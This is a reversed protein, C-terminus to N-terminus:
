EPFEPKPDRGFFTQKLNKRNTLIFASGILLPIYFSGWVQTFSDIRADTPNDPDYRVTVSEGIRFAWGGIFGEGVNSTFQVPRGDETVFTVIPLIANDEGMFKSEVDIVLGMAAASGHLFILTNILGYASYLILILGVRPFIRDSWSMGVARTRDTGVNGM